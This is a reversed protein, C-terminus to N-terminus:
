IERMSPTPVPERRAWRQGAPTDRVELGLGSLRARLSDSEAWNKSARADARSDLLDRQEATVQSLRCAMPVLDLGLVRDFDELLALKRGATEAKAGMAEHLVAIAGPMDLDRNIAEHFRSRLPELDTGIASGASGVSDAEQYAEAAAEWLRALATQAALLAEWSFSLKTRYHAQFTFYRYALPHVGREVLDSVTFINGKSKSMKDDDAAQLLEGHLWYNVFIHGTAAESQAIEDEHHPFLNDVGGTHIDIHDGLLEFNMASCELHWGPVGWGWPSQWRMLKDPGAVKWLAFDAPFRKGEEVEVRKGAILDEVSNGSLRGYQPFSSVDFYVGTEAVYAHHSDLLRQVLRQMSEIFRSAQPEEAPEALNLRQADEWFAESYFRAIERPDKGVRRAALEMKDEGQDIDDRTLHGVDTINRVHRVRYGNYELVRRLIDALINSRFNGIHAYGYVTPGCTYMRVRNPEIPHFEELRRGMSNTLLIPRSDALNPAEPLLIHAM